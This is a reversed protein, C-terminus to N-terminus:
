HLIHQIHWVFSDARHPCTASNTGHRRLFHWRDHHHGSFRTQASIGTLCDTDRITFTLKICYCNEQGGISLLLAILTLASFLLFFYTLFILFTCVPPFHCHHHHFNYLLFDATMLHSYAVIQIVIYVAYFSTFVAWQSCCTMRCCSDVFLSTCSSKTQWVAILFAAHAWM